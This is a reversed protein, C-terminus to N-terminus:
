KGGICYLKANTRIFIQGHAAVITSRTFDDGPEGMPITSIVTGAKADVVVVDGAFNMVYIKGDACLPSAEYKKTGPLTVTWKPEGNAPSVRSLSRKGDNVVFFDDQYFAPTPVDSSVVRKDSKWALASDDQKGSVGAKIAYIPENKPACALVVGGGAVPSPVLRWHGIKTPNWTGWRWLERGTAPDHGTICDGGVVLIETRGQHTFPVPSAFSEHSEAVAESPRLQRWLEKGSAPDLALLFSENGTAKGRGNVAVDRQLIQLYLKGAFLLPTSSFTWQFAFEGYDKTISRTWLEKGAHDYAALAGNGYFFFVRTADAVPSPSSFNSRNDRNYGDTIKREWLLKGTKRDLCLAHLTKNAQHATSLFVRDGVIIPTSASPGDFTYTWAVGETKSWTSPLKREDNASGNFEPGRWQPWDGAFSRCALTLTVILPLWTRTPM